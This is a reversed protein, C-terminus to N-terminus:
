GNKLNKTIKERESAMESEKAPYLQLYQDLAQAADYWKKRKMLTDIKGSWADHILGTDSYSRIIEDYFIGAAKYKGLQVYNRAISFSNRALKERFRKITRAAYRVSDIRSYQASASAYSEKYSPNEPNIKLLERYKEVESSVKMSDTVPYLDLYLSFQEIAKLTHQQDLEYHPSLQEYSKALMFQATKAYPTSPLQQLLRSYIDGALLYEKSHYYSQALLFLVDDELATARSTFILSELVLSADAYDKKAFLNEAKAYGESVRASVTAAPKSSSCGSLMVIGTVCILTASRLINRTVPM